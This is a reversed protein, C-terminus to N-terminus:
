NAASADKRGAALGFKGADGDIGPLLKRAAALDAAAREADGLQSRVIGRGYFSWAGDPKIKLSRDFDALADRWDGRRLHVWARSDVFAANDSQSDVAMECDALAKDLEVNLMARAWCRANLADGLDVEHPHAAVWMDWQPLAQRPLDLAAYLQAMSRRLNAQPAQSKDLFQLDELAGERQGLARRLQARQMRGEALAPDLRLAADLDALAQQRHGLMLQAEGRRAVYDAVQPALACAHDLDALAGAFDRRAMAVAARRAYGEADVPQEAHEAQAAADAAGLTNLAFIPGGNYTFYLRRQAKSVYLHHSLFFDIGLLMDGDPSEFDAIQMRNNSIAEGGLEIKDVPATWAKAEGYGAGHIKGVPTMDADKVGARRAASLALVSTAGTDFLVGIQKGNVTASARMALLKRTPDRRLSLVSVPTDGAWYAMNMADCDGKPVLLRILGHALDYETDTAALLNRGILGMAGAGPDNGGVIFEVDPMDGDLLHLREVTTMRADIEGALGHVRLGNPLSEVHLNLQQAAAETLMSYFAGSDVMLPVEVGNIGVTAIARTGVMKVPLVIVGLHCREASRASQLLGLALLAGLALRPWKARRPARAARCAAAEHRGKEFENM